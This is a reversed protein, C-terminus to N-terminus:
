AVRFHMRSRAGPCLQSVRRALDIRRAPELSNYMSFDQVGYEDLVDEIVFPDFVTDLLVLRSEAFVQLRLALSEYCQM